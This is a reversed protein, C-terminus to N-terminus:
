LKGMSWIIKGLIPSDKISKAKKMTCVKIPYKEKNENDPSFLLYRDEILIRRVMIKNKWNLLFLSNHQPKKYELDIGIISGEPLAPAMSNDKIQSCKIDKDKPSLEKPVLVYESSKQAMPVNKVLDNIPLIPVPNYTQSLKQPNIKNPDNHIIRFSLGKKPRNFFNRIKSHKSIILRLVGETKDLGLKECIKEIILESVGPRKGSCIRSLVSEDIELDKAAISRTRYKKDIAPRIYDALPSSKTSKPKNTM